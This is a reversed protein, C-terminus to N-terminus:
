WWRRLPCDLHNWNEYRASTASCVKQDFHGVPLNKFELVALHSALVAPFCQPDFMDAIVQRPGFFEVRLKVLGGLLGALPGWIL